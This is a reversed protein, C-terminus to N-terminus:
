KKRKIKVRKKNVGIYENLESKWGFSEKNVARNM